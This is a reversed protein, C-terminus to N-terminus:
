HNTAFSGCNNQAILILATDDVCRGQLKYNFINRHKTCNVWLNFKENKYQAYKKYKVVNKYIITVFKKYINTVYHLCNIWDFGYIM